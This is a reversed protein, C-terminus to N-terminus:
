ALNVLRIPMVVVLSRSIVKCFWRRTNIFDSDQMHCVVGGGGPCFMGWAASGDVISLYQQYNPTANFTKKLLPM